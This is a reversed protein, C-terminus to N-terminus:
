SDTGDCTFKRAFSFPTIVLRAWPSCIAWRTTRDAQRCARRNRRGEM